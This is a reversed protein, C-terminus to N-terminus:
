CIRYRLSFVVVLYVKVKGVFEEIRIDFVGVRDFVVLGLSSKKM